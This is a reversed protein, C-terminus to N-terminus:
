QLLSLVSQATQNAQALMAQAAQQLIQAKTLNATEEAIDSDQIRSRSEKTNMVVNSLNNITYQMRNITAGLDGREADIRRLAGDVVGLMTKANAVTLIDLDAVSRLNAAGPAAQFLGGGAAGDAATHVSFVESSHFSVQGTVRASDVAGPTSSDALVIPQGTTAMNEDLGVLRM